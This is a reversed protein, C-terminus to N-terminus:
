GVSCGEYNIQTRRGDRIVIARGNHFPKVAECDTCDLVQRGTPDIFHWMGGLSVAALGETFDFGCDYVPPIVIQQAVRYGWLGEEEFLELGSAAEAPTVVANLLKRLGPLRLGPTRLLRAIRYRIGDGHRAFLNLTQDLAEDLHIQQPSYLLGDGTHYRDYLTPDLTLAHLATSILVVPYDDLSADFDQATRAPHQFAATGLETSQEGAFTPLFTADFDILRLEGQPTLIINEPKLDGHAWDDSLLSAGLRDFAESLASLAVKDHNGAATTIAEHLTCGEIWDDVVVDTWVGETPTTYVYLEGRLLRDGYIEATHRAPRTYCRLSKDRGQHRIRFVVASNGATYCMRRQADHRVEIRGLSRTLGEPDTM